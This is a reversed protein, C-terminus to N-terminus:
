VTSSIFAKLKLDYGPFGEPYGADRRIGHDSGDVGIAVSYAVAHGFSETHAGTGMGFWYDDSLRGAM